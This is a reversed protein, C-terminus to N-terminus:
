AVMGTPRALRHAAQSPEALLPTLWVAIESLEAVRSANLAAFPLAHLVLCGLLAGDASDTLPIAAVGVGELAARDSRRAVHVIGRRRILREVLAVPLVDRRGSSQSSRLWARAEDATVRFCTFDESRAALGILHAIAGRREVPDLTSLRTATAIVHGITRGETAIQVQLRRNTASLADFAETLRAVNRAAVRGRRELRAHRGLRIITVEGVAVAMVFWMLPQLSLHFLHDLYDRGEGDDAHALWLASAIAAAVVGPGTGYALAMVLVPIWFPNPQVQAFGSGGTLWADLGVLATFILTIEVAIRILRRWVPSERPTM